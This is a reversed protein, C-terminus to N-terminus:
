SVKYLYLVAFVVPPHARLSILFAVTSMDLAHNEFLVHFHVWCFNVLKLLKPLVYQLIVPVARRNEKAKM